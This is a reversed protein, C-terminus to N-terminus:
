TSVSDLEGGSLQYSVFWQVDKVNVLLVSVIIM